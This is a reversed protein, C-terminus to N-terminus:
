VHALEDLYSSLIADIETTEAECEWVVLCHWGLKQLEAIAKRDRAKNKIRKERWYETNSKPLSSRNCGEHGHWFCGHVFVVCRHKPLVIDPTGPLQKVHLRFRYGMRHLRSRVRIEPTTDRQPVAAM